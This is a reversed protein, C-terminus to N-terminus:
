GSVSGPSDGHLCSHFVGDHDDRAREFGEDGEAVRRVLGAQRLLDDIEDVEARHIVLQQASAIAPALSLVAAGALVANRYRGM